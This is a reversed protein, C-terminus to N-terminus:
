VLGVKVKGLTVTVLYITREDTLENYHFVDFLLLLTDVQLQHTPRSFNELPCGNRGEGRGIEFCVPFLFLYVRNEEKWASFFLKGRNELFSFIYPGRESVKPFGEM